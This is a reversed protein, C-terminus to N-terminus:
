FCSQCTYIINTGTPTFKKVAAKFREVSSPLGVLEEFILFAGPGRAEKSAERIAQYLLSTDVCENKIFQNCQLVAYPQGDPIALALRSKGSGAPGEIEITLNQIM